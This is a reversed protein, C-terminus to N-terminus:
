RGSRSACCSAPMASWRMSGARRRPSATCWGRVEAEEAVDAQVSRAAFETAAPERDAIVVRWGDRALRAAVALGIGRAGGTVLAVRHQSDM